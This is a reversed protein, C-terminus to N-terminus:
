AVEWEAAQHPELYIRVIRVVERETSEIKTVDIEVISIGSVAEGTNIELTRLTRAIDAQANAIIAARGIGGTKM